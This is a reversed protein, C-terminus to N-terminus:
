GIKNKLHFIYFWANFSWTTEKPDVTTTRALAAETRWPSDGRCARTGSCTYRPSADRTARSNGDRSPLSGSHSHSHPQRLSHANSSVRRLHVCPLLLGCRSATTWTLPSNQPHPHSGRVAPHRESCPLQTNGGLKYLRHNKQVTPSYSLCWSPNGLVISGRVASLTLVFACVGASGGPSQARRQQFWEDVKGRGIKNVPLRTM